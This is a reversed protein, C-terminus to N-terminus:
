KRQRASLRSLMTSIHAQDRQLYKAVEGVRYGHDRVLLAVADAPKTSVKWRRDRGRLVEPTIGLRRATKKFVKEIPQKTRREEQQDAQRSTGYYLLYGSALAPGLNYHNNHRVGSRVM